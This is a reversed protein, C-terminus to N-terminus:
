RDERDRSPRSMVYRLLLMAPTLAGTSRSIPSSHERWTNRPPYVTPL